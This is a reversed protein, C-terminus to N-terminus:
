LQMGRVLSRVLKAAYAIDKRNHITGDTEFALKESDHDNAPGVGPRTVRMVKGGWSRAWAAENAFRCDTVVVGATLQEHTIQDKVQKVWFDESINERHWVGVRQLLERVEPFTRKAYDWGDIDVVERLRLVAEISHDTEIVPNMEYLLERLKDAFAYRVFGHEQVLIDAVTDKGSGAYGTLGILM